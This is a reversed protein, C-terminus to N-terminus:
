RSTRRRALEDLSLDFDAAVEDAVRESLELPDEEELPAFSPAKGWGRDGLWAVAAIRDSDKAKESSAISAMIQALVLGDSGVLDRVAKALGKPRGGPNGSKGKEFPAVLNGNGAPTEPPNQAPQGM